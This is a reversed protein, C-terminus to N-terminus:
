SMQRKPKVSLSSFVGSSSTDNEIVSKSSFTLYIYCYGNLYERGDFHKEYSDGLFEGRKEAKYGENVFIDQKHVICWPPLIKYAQMFSAIISDYGAENVTYAVPLFVRWGFTMDGRKSVVCGDNIMMIPIYERLTRDNM